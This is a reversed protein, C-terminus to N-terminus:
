NGALRHSDPVQTLDTSFLGVRLHVLLLQLHKHFPVKLQRILELVPFSLRSSEHLETLEQRLLTVVFRRGLVEIPRHFNSLISFITFYLVGGFDIEAHSIGGHLPSVM